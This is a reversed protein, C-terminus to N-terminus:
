PWSRLPTHRICILCTRTYIEPACGREFRTQVPQDLRSRSTTRTGPNQPCFARSSRQPGSNAGNRTAQPCGPREQNPGTALLEPKAYGPHRLQDGRERAEQNEELIRYMTRIPCMYEGEDLLTEHPALDIFRECHLTNLVSGREEQSLARPPAPRSPADDSPVLTRTDNRRYLNARSVGLAACAAKLGVDPSLTSVAEM